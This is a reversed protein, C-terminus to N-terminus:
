YPIAGLSDAFECIQKDEELIAKEENQIIYLVSQSIHVLRRIYGDKISFSQSTNSLELLNRAILSIQEFFSKILQLIDYSLFPIMRDFDMAFLDLLNVWQELQSKKTYEDLNAINPLESSFKLSNKMFKECSHLAASVISFVENGLPVSPFEEFHAKIKFNILNIAQFLQYFHKKQTFQKIEDAICQIDKKHGIGSATPHDSQYLGELNKAQQALKNTETSARLVESLTDQSQATYDLIEQCLMIIREWRSPPKKSPNHNVESM